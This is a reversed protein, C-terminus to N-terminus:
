FIAGRLPNSMRGGATLHERIGSPIEPSGVRYISCGSMAERRNVSGGIFELVIRSAVPEHGDAGSVGMRLGSLYSVRNRYSQFLITQSLESGTISEQDFLYFRDGVNTVIGEYKYVDPPGDQGDMRLREIRKFFTYTDSPYIHILARLIHQPTSFSLYYEYYYGHIKAVQSRQQPSLSLLDPVTSLVPPLDSKKTPRLAIIKRFQDPPLLLEFEDVGLFDCITRLSRRSPYAAGSLYKMFQQRNIGLRRCLESVSPYYGAAFKLNMPLFSFEDDSMDSSSGQIADVLSMTM